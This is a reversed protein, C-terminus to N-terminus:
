QGEVWHRKDGLAFGIETFLLKLGTRGLHTVLSELDITLGLGKGRM